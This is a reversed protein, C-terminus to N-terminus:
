YPAQEQIEDPVTSRVAKRLAKKAAAKAAVARTGRGGCYFEFDRRAHAIKRTKLTKM